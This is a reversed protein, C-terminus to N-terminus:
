SFAAWIDSLPLAVSEDDHAGYDNVSDRLDLMIGAIALEEATKRKPADMLYNEELNWVTKGVEYNGRKGMNFYRKMELACFEAWGEVLGWESDPNNYYGAHDNGLPSRMEPQAEDQIHHCYEHFERNTPAAFLNFVSGGTEIRMGVEDPAQNAYVESLHSTGHNPDFATVREMAVPTFKLAKERFEVAKLMNLYIQALPKQDWSALEKDYYALRSDNSPIGRDMYFGSSRSGGQMATVQVAQAKDTFYILLDIENGPALAKASRWEFKGNEGLWAFDNPDETRVGQADTYEFMVKANKVPVLGGLDNKYYIYGYIRDVAKAPQVPQPAPPAPQTCYASNPVGEYYKCRMATCLTGPVWESAEVNVAYYTGDAGCWPECDACDQEVVKAECSTADACKGTPCSMPSMAYCTGGACGGQELKGNSCSVPCDDGTNCSTASIIGPLAFALLVLLVALKM